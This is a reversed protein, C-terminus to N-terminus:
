HPKQLLNFGGPSRSRSPSSQTKRKSQDLRDALDIFRQAQRNLNSYTM